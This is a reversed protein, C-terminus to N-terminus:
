DKVTNGDRDDRNGDDAGAGAGADVHHARAYAWPGAVAVVPHDWGIYDSDPYDM